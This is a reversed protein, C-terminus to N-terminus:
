FRESERSRWCEITGEVVVALPETAEHTLDKMHGDARKWAEKAGEKDGIVERVVGDAANAVAEGLSVAAELPSTVVRWLQADASAPAAGFTALVTILAIALPTKISM